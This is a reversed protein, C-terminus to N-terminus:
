RVFPLSGPARWHLRRAGEAESSARAWGCFLRVDLSVRCGRPRPWPARRLGPNDGFEPPGQAPPQPANGPAPALTQRGLDHAAVYAAERWVTDYAKRVDVFMALTPLGRVRRRALIEHLLFIQDPTGRKPRFGGQEDCMLDFAESKSSVRNNLIGAFLKGINSLLTIGRYNSPLLRSGGKHLPMTIGEAWAEPWVHRELMFNFLLATASVFRNDADFKNTDVAGGAFRIIDSPIGDPGAATGMRMRRIAAFVERDTFPADLAADNEQRAHLIRLRLDVMTKTRPDEILAASPSALEATYKRWVEVVAVPDTHVVGLSDEVLTPPPRPTPSGIRSATRMAGSSSPTVRTGNSTVSCPTDRRPNPAASRLRSLVELRHFPTAPRVLCRPPLPCPRWATGPGTGPM